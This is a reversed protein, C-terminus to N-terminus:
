SYIIDFAQFDTNNQDKIVVKVKDELVNITMVKANSDLYIEEGNLHWFQNTDGSPNKFIVESGENSSEATLVKDCSFSKILGKKEPIYVLKQNDSYSLPEFTIHSTENIMSDLTVAKGIARNVLFFPLSSSPEVFM